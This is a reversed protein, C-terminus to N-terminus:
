SYGVYTNADRCFIFEDHVRAHAMEELEEQKKPFYGVREGLRDHV